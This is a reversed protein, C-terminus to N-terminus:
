SFKGSQREKLAAKRSLRIRGKSDVGICKVWMRDGVKCIDSVNKIPVDSMESIHVLGGKGPFIEVFAGYEKVGTVIGSYIMGEQIEGSVKQIESIATMMGDRDQAFIWVTGDEEIDIQTGSLETIRRINKGAPGILEGIKDTPIHMRHIRPAYPSLDPRHSSIVGKMIELIKLRAVRAKEFAQEVVHWPLGHIKVDVQFGTIGKETGAVKFDMDGCHDEAGIIDVLLHTKNDWSMLGISVGAVHRPIPVGADMLALSGVCVSAMSSSGNSSMIDSVLRITYPFDAPILPALSREALAGHGIERRGPGAIKGVEGTCYPPFNYHVMFRKEEAGGTVADLEQIDSRTGLTVTGVAQTEGRTFIASGHVRPFIGVEAQIPRIDDYGRGDLRKGEMVVMKRVLEIMLKDFAMNFVIETVVPYKEVVKAFVSKKVEAIRNERARMDQIRLADNLLPEATERLIGTLIRDEMDVVQVIKAPLGMRRRLELQAEILKICESHAFRMAEIIVPEEVENASGEIMVPMEATCAYVLDIDSEVRQTFTPNIIFQGKVRGVRVGGVPGLFPIESLTLASSAGIICLVDSDNEGDASLVMSNVQVENRYSHPFLPRIPRDTMRATLIEKETPRSERKFFGGPFKGAAYFKERYEVQLPFYDKETDIEKSFTVATFVVTDELRVTVAGASQKALVGSEIIIERNGVPVSISTTGKM